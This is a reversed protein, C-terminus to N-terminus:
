YPKFYIGQRGIHVEWAPLPTLLRALDYTVALADGVTSVVPRRALRNGAVLFGGSVITDQGIYVEGANRDIGTHGAITDGVFVQGFSMTSAVSASASFLGYAPIGIVPIPLALTGILQWYTAGIDTGTAGLSLATPLDTRLGGQGNLIYNAKPFLGHWDALSLQGMDQLQMNQLAHVNGFIPQGQGNSIFQGVGGTPFLPLTITWDGFEAARLMGWWHQDQMWQTVQDDGFWGRLQDESFHGSPDTYRVPNNLGYSYRNLSQPNGPQPVIPDPSIFRGIAPDYWRAGMQILNIYSDLPQGIFLRNTAMAGLRNNDTWGYRLGGYAYYRQEGVQVASLDSVIAMSGLHDGHLFYLTEGIREALRQSGAYYYKTATPSQTGVFSLDDIYLKDGPSGSYIGVVVMTLQGLPPSLPDNNTGMKQDSLDLSVYHWETDRVVPINWGQYYHFSGDEAVQYTHSGITFYILMLTNPNTKKYAFNLRSTLNSSPLPSTWTACDSTHGAAIEVKLSYVGRYATDSSRSGQFDPWGSKGGFSSPDEEDYVNVRTQNPSRTSWEFYNGIYSTTTDGEVKKVRQGDGDYTYTSRVGNNNVTILHNEADYALTDYARWIMNGNADYNYLVNGAVSNVAHPHNPDYAYPLGNKSTINGAATYQYSQTYGGSVNTLRHWPDYALAVNETGMWPYTISTVNGVSDYGYTAEFLDKPTGNPWKGVVELTALRFNDSRYFWNTYATNGYFQQSVQGRANYIASSLYNYNYDVSHTQNLLGNTKYTNNAQEGESGGNNAPYKMWILRDLPDYGWKTTFVGGGNVTKSEQIMRGRSDYQWSTSGSSDVMTTRRGKGNTLQDYFYTTGTFEKYDDILSSTGQRRISHHFRWSLSTPLAMTYSSRISPDSEKYVQISSGGKDDVVIQLM